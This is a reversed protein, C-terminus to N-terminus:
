QEASGGRFFIIPHRNLICLTLWDGKVESHIYYGITLQDGSYNGGGLSAEELGQSSLLLTNDCM